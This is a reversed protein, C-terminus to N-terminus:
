TESTYKNTTRTIEGVNAFATTHEITVVGCSIQLEKDAVADGCRMIRGAVDTLTFKSTLTSPVSPVYTGAGEVEDFNFVLRCFHGQCHIIESLKENRDFL